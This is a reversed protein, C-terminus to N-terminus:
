KAKLVKLSSQYRVDKYSRGVNITYLAGNQCHLVANFIEGAVEFKIRSIKADGIGTPLLLTKPMRSKHFRFKGILLMDWPGGRQATNIRTLQKRCLGQLDNPAADVLASILAREFPYLYPRTLPLFSYMRALLEPKSVVM